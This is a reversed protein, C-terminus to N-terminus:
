LNIIVKSLVDISKSVKKFDRISLGHSLDKMAKAMNSKIEPDLRKKTEIKDLHRILANLMEKNM